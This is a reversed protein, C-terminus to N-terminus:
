GQAASSTVLSPALVARGVTPQTKVAQTTAHQGHAANPVAVTDQEVWWTVADYVAELSSYRQQYSLLRPAEAISCHPSHM